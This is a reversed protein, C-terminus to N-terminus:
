WRGKVALGWGRERKGEEGERREKRMQIQWKVWKPTKGWAESIPTILVIKMELAIHGFVVYSCQYRIPPSKPYWVDLLLKTEERISTCMCRWAIAMGVWCCLRMLSSVCIKVQASAVFFLISVIWMTLFEDQRSDFGLYLQALSDDKVVLSHRHCAKWTIWCPIHGAAVNSTKTGLYANATVFVFLCVCNKVRAGSDVCFFVNICM